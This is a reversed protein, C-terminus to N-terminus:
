VAKRYFQQPYDASEMAPTLRDMKGQRSKSPKKHYQLVEKRKHFQRHLKAGVEDVAAYFDNSVASAKFHGWGCQVTVSVHCEHRRMSYFIKWQSEKLLLLGVKEFHAETYDRLASSVDVQHFSFQFKM